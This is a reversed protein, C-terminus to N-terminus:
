ARPRAPGPAHGPRRPQDHQGHRRARPGRAEAGEQAHRGLRPGRRRRGRQRQRRRRGAPRDHASGGILDRIKDAPDRFGDAYYVVSAGYSFDDANGAARANYRRERLADALDEAALVKGSGNMVAVDVTAPDVPKENAAEGEEFEPHKWENVKTRVESTSAEEVAAGNILNSSGQIKM